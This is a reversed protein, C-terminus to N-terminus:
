SEGEAHLWQLRADGPQQQTATTPKKSELLRKGVQVGPNRAVTEVKKDASIRQLNHNVPGPGPARLEPARLESALM